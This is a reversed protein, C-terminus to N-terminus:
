NNNQAILPSLYKIFTAQKLIKINKSSKKTIKNLTSVINSFGILARNENGNSWKEDLVFFSIPIIFSYDANNIVYKNIASDKIIKEIFLEFNTSAPEFINLRKNKFDYELICIYSLDTNNFKSLPIEIKKILGKEFNNQAIITENKVIFLTIFCLIKFYYKM